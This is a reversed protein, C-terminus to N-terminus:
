FNSLIESKTMEDNYKCYFNTTRVQICEHMITNWGEGSTIRILMFLSNSFSEFNWKKSIITQYKVSGFINMGIVGYIFVLIFYLMAINMVGPISNLFLNFIRNLSVAKKLLRLIRAVRIARFISSNLVNTKLQLIVKITTDLVTECVVVFDLVNWPIKFYECRYVYIKFVAEFIFIYNFIETMKSLFDATMGDMDPWNWMLLIMNAIICLTIVVDFYISDLINLLIKTTTDKKSRKKPIPENFLNVYIKYFEKQIPIKFDSNEIQAKENKFNDSLIAISLNLLFFYAIIMYFIFFLFWSYRNNKLPQQNISTSDMASYMYFTWNETTMMEFFLIFSSRINDFNPYPNIWEGGYDLCDWKNVILPMYELPVNLFDCRYFLGRFYTMAIVAFILIFVSGILIINLMQQISTFLAKLAAQLSKFKEVIKFVRMIRFMKIIRFVKHSASMISNSDVTYISYSNEIIYSISLAISVLELVRFSNRMYSYQGNFLFGVAIITLVTEIVFVFTTVIDLYFLTKIMSDDSVMPNDLGLILLSIFINILIIYEFLKNHFALKWCMKRFNNTKSFLFLSKRVIPIHDKLKFVDMSANLGSNNKGEFANSYLTGQVLGGRKKIQPLITLKKAEDDTEWCDM